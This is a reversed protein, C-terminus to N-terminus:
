SKRQSRGGSTPEHHFVSVFSFNAFAVQGDMIPVMVHLPLQGTGDLNVPVALRRKRIGGGVSPDFCIEGWKPQPVKARSIM